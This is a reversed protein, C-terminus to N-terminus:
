PKKALPCFYFSCLTYEVHSSVASLKAGEAGCPPCLGARVFSFFPFSCCGRQLSAGRANGEKMGCTLAGCHVASPSCSCGVSPSLGGPGAAAWLAGLM